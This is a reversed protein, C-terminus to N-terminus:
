RGAPSDGTSDPFLKPPTLFRGFLRKIQEAPLKAAYVIKEAHFPDKKGTM